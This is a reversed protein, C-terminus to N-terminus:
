SIEALLRQQRWAPAACNFLSTGPRLLCLHQAAAFRQRQYGDRLVQLCHESSPQAGMFYRVGPQFRQSTTTWWIHVKAQDPWPLGDDEDMAVDEDDPNDNAGSETEEPASRELGPETLDLGSIFSFSEGAFRALKDDAMLGILWPIHSADGAFGIARILLRVDERQGAIHGVLQGAAAADMGFLALALAQVRFKGPQLAIRGLMALGNGRDGLLVSAQAARFQCEADDDNLSQVCLSHLDRRGVEGACRLAQARLPADTAVMTQALVAGPDVRHVTCAAIGIRQHFPDPDSLLESVIGRLIPASVWGFASTLGALAGPSAAALAILTQLHETSREELARIAALFVEGRDPSELEAQAMQRGFEGAVAVGDLHAALREDARSLHLLQIHPASILYARTNRLSVADSVHQSIVDSLPSRIINPVKLTSGKLPEDHIQVKVSCPRLQSHRRQPM